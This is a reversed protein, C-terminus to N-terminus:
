IRKMKRAEKHFYHRAKNAAVKWLAKWKLESVAITDREERQLEKGIYGLFQGTNCLDITLGQEKLHDLGKELRAGTLIKEVCEEISKMKEPSVEIVKKKVKESHKQGKTKFWLDSDTPREKCTWVIGEGVGEVGFKAAWPCRKEVALTIEEMKKAASEPSSFDVKVAFTDVSLINHINCEPLAIEIHNGAYESGVAVQFIVLQREQLSSIAVGRQVGPGILEGFLTVRDEGCDIGLSHCATDFLRKLEDKPISQVFPLFEYHQNAKTLVQKRSQAGFVFTGDGGKERFIGSNTGHLKPTGQFTLTPLQSGTKEAWIRVREVIHRFQEISSFCKM